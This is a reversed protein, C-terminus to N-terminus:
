RTPWDGRWRQYTAGGFPKKRKLKLNAMHACLSDAMHNEVIVRQFVPDYVDVKADGRISKRLWEDSCGAVQFVVLVPYSM